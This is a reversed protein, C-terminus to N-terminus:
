PHMDHAPTGARPGVKLETLKVEFHEKIFEQAHEEQLLALLM